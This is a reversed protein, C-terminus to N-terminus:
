ACGSQLNSSKFIQTAIRRQERLIFPTVTDYKEGERRTEVKRLMTMYNDDIM